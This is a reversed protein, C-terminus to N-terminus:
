PLVTFPVNSLGNGNPTVVQVTGTIAGTPVTTTILTKSVVTFVAPTGNFTVGTADTLNTGLINVAAAVAGSTPQTEVFPKLGVSLSFITGCGVKEGTGCVNNTGGYYTTGYFIGNTSQLLAGTPEVGPEYGFSSYLITLTGSPTIKFITGFGKAGGFLTAGYLNGDTGQVLAEEPGNGNKGDFRDLTTLAGSTTIAFVTGCGGECQANRADGGSFTTGYLEGNTAQVLGGLPEDGDTADFSHLTTLTGGPTIKFITGLGIPAGNAGGEYTTGYYDGDAGQVLGALPTAGDTFDFSHLTTLTGRPTIKFVTGCGYGLIELCAHSNNAGGYSTVGYFTGDAAQVLPGSPGFGDPTTGFSYLTTLTGSPTIKFVTGGCSGAVCDGNAGGALTAGYFDGDAGQVLPGVPLFGDTCNAQSCFSYLTTLTGSPTIKFVTGCANFEYATCLSNTNAGGANTTGYFNGDTAQILGGRPQGGDTGDFTFLTTFTQAPLTTAASWFLFVGCAKTVWNLKSM